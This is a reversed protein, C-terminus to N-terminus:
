PVPRRLFQVVSQVFRPASDEMHAAHDGGPVIVWQRDPHALRTFLKAQNAIPAYPDREGHIVLTPTKVASPDLANWQETGRWDMRVPDAELAARVFEDIAAKSISGPIIFDEAAAAATTAKRPPPTSASPGEPYTQDPDRPYGFLVLASLADPHRQATLQGVLSGLSWGLLAPAPASPHQQGVWALVAALDDVARDPTLWGSDDRPTGGYGRQDIAYVAFGEAVLLDMTSRSEGPVQLDFDPRASWTRGHVLVIVDKADAPRRYWVTIPHGDVDVATSGSDVEVQATPSAEANARASQESAVPTVSGDNAPEATLCAGLGVVAFAVVSRSLRAFLRRSPVGPWLM